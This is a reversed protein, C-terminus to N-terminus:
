ICVHLLEYPYRIWLSILQLLKSINTKKVWNKLEKPFKLCKLVFCVRIVSEKSEKSSSSSAGNEATKAAQAAAPPKKTVRQVFLPLADFEDKPATEGEGSMIISQVFFSTVFSESQM